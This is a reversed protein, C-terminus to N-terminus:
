KKRLRDLLETTVRESTKTAERRAKFDLASSLTRKCAQLSLRMRALLPPVFRWAKHGDLPAVPVLNFIAIFINVEIFVMLFPALLYYVQPLWRECAYRLTLTVVLLVGQAFVGGWAIFIDDSAYYAEEHECQGHMAFLKISFVETNRARAAFAHGLEHVLMLAAFAILTVVAWMFSRRTWWYWPLWLLLTWHFYLPVGKWRGFQRYGSEVM